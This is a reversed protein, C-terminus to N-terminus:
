DGEGSRRPLESDGKGQVQEDELMRLKRKLHAVLSMFVEGSERPNAASSAVILATMMMLTATTSAFAESEEAGAMEHRSVVDKIWLRLKEDAWNEIDKKIRPDVM